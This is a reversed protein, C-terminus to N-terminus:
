KNHIIIKRTMIKGDQKVSLLYVGAPLDIIEVSISNDNEPIVNRLNLVQSGYYNMLRIDTESDSTTNLSITFVGNNPNPIVTIGSNEPKSQNIGVTNDVTILLEESFDGFGCENAAAVSISAEGLYDINWQVVAHNDVFNITGAEEPEIVWLYDIADDIIETIYETETVKFVDVYDSGVPQQPTDAGGKVILTLNDELTLGDNDVISLTLTVIGDISDQIGPIYNTSLSNPNSFVGDGSTLWELSAYNTASGLCYYNSGACTEGDPGAFITTCYMAPLEIYDIWVCDSGSSGSANKAYEWKFTHNGATVPFCEQNYAESGSWSGVIANDIYFNLKDFDAESSIKKYFRISDNSLVNYTIKLSSKENNGIAGSKAHFYGEYPYQYSIEWNANGEHKWDFKNFNGTEWDEILAGIKPFYHKSVSYGAVSSNFYMDVPVGNPADSSVTANFTVWYGSGFLGLSSITQSGDNINIYSNYPILNCIVNSASSHGTNLVNVKIDVTEGPDLRGNNNGSQSDDIVMTGNVINPANATAYFKSYWTSDNEDSAVLLFEFQHQDPIADSVHFKYANDKTKYEGIAITDYNESDSIFDAYQDTSLMVEVDIGDEIGLNKVTLSIFIDEDFDIKGNGNGLSDNFVHSAYMCYPGDPPIVEVSTEYRYYNQLTIVIDVMTGPEQAIIPVQISNGTGEGLGIIQDGVTLCIISGQNATITFNDFSSLIVDDHVVTLNQPVESYLNLFADGHHHFLYYTVEKNETNYPWSSQKLFYKGAANGFAPMLGRHEPTTGYDPMFDPWMNDYMGWTYTDNVFSYSVETAAIIGLAGSNQGNYTYRHFKEAFCEGSINFKGTLCNVSFVFVLDENTLGDINSSSYAPEGWGTESGHDRHQLLFAGSNIDNNVRTANGGWDTLYNPSDPIYGLGSEGFYNVVTSTNSASSWSGSPSGSYIANERVPTKGLSNEFFGAVVESCIQFWRETQWGMATIPNNYYDPNTPPNREYNLFKTVMTQLHTENQATMRAMVVDPMMDGDVDAYYNDSICYNDWIPSTIANGSTGYDAMLLCAAPPIDWTTYANDIYGEIAATTNGGVETTTVVKTTIGQKIRFIRISDAWSLFTPDDPVIILYEAGTERGRNISVQKEPISSQNIVADRLIPEWFRNRLREEGFQGNGGEFTVEIEVNKNILLEKTVPNYQFPSVALIVVDVGRIKMPESVQVINAPYSANVNYIEPNKEFTLPDTDTDWPIRPAPAIDMGQMIETEKIVVQAKVLAGQPVAIYSSYVPVNPAGEDNQLMVGKMTITTMAERNVNTKSMVFDEVTFNLTLGNKDQSLVTIGQDGWSNDMSVKQASLQLAMFSIVIVTTVRLIFFLLQKM